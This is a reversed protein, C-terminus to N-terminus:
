ESEILAERSTFFKRAAEDDPSLEFDPNGMNYIIFRNTDCAFYLLLM